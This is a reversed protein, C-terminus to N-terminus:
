TALPEPSVEEPWCAVAPGLDLNGDEFRVLYLKQDPDEELHGTNVLVGRAGAVAVCANNDVGPLSGDNFVNTAAYIMDGPKLNELNM